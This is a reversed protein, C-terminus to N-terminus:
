DIFATFSLRANGLRCHVRTADPAGVSFPPAVCLYRLVRCRRYSCNAPGITRELWAAAVTRARACSIGSARLGRVPINNTRCARAFVAGRAETASFRAHFTRKGRRGNAVRDIIWLNWGYVRTPDNASPGTSRAPGHFYAHVLRRVGRCSSRKARVAYFRYRLGNARVTFAPCGHAAGAVPAASSRVPSAQAQVAGVLACAATAAIVGLLRMNM